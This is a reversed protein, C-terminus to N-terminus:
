WFPWSAQLVTLFRMGRKARTSAGAGKRIFLVEPCSQLAQTPPVPLPPGWMSTPIELSVPLVGIMKSVWKSTESWARKM